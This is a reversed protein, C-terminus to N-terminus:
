RSPTGKHSSWHISRIKWGAGEKTLVMSEAGVSDIPKGKFKGRSASTGVTWASAGRIRIQLPSRKTTVARAFEIDQALHHSRYQSRSEMAGSELIIADDALLSLAGSSDGESLAKHFEAVVRAVAVSDSQKVAFPREGDGFLTFGATALFLGHITFLRATLM